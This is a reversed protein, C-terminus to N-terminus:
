EQDALTIKLKQSSTSPQKVFTSEGCKKRAILTTLKKDSIQFTELFTKRCVRLFAGTNDPLTYRISCQRRSETPDEYTGHRRRGIPIISILGMLFNRQENKSLKHYSVFLKRKVQSEALKKCLFQCKCTAQFHFITEDLNSINCTSFM